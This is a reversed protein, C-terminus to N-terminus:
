CWGPGLGFGRQKEMIYCNWNNFAEEESSGYVIVSHTGDSCVANGVESVGFISTHNSFNPLKGCVPCALIKM